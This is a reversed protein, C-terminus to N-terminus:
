RTHEARTVLAFLLEIIEEPRSWEKSDRLRGGLELDILGHVASYMLGAMKHPDGPSLEGANQCAQILTALADITAAAKQQTSGGPMVVEASSFLLRYRAPSKRAFVFLHLLATRLEAFPSDSGPQLADTFLFTLDDLDIEAVAALLAHRNAFHRYVANHSVMARKGVERLTVADVGGEELLQKTAAILYERTTGNETM